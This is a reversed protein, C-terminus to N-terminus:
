LTIAALWRVGRRGVRRGVCLDRVGRWLVGGASGALLAPMFRCFLDEDGRRRQAGDPCAQVLQMLGNMEVLGRM